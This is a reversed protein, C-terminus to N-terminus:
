FFFCRIKVILYMKDYTDKIPHYSTKCELAHFRERGFVPITHEFRMQVRKLRSEQKPFFLQLIILDSQQRHIERILKQIGWGIKIFGSIYIMAGSGM